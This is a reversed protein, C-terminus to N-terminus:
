SPRAMVPEDPAYIALERTRRKSDPDTDTPVAELAAVYEAPLGHERAGRVVHEKYWDFPLPGPDASLARYTYAQVCEGGPRLIDVEVREYAVNRSEYRDLVPLEYEAFRFLVGHVVDEARGTYFADCKASGDTQSLLHFALRHAALAGTGISRSTSLRAGLRASSMNSGYAFYHVFESM